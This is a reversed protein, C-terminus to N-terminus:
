MLNNARISNAARIAEALDPNLRAAEDYCSRLLIDSFRADRPDLSLAGEELVFSALSGDSHRM